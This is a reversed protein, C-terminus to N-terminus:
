LLDGPGQSLVLTPLLPLTTLFSLVITRGQTKGLPSWCPCLWGIVFKLFAEKLM